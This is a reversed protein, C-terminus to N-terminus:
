IQASPLHIKQNRQMCRHVQEEHQLGIDDPIVRDLLGGNQRVNSTKEAPPKDSHRWKRRLILSISTDVDKQIKKKVSM